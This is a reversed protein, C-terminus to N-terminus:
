ADSVLPQVADEQASILWKTKTKDDENANSKVVQFNIHMPVNPRWGTLYSVLRLSPTQVLEVFLHGEAGPIREDFAVHKVNFHTEPVMARYFLYIGIVRKRSDPRAPVYCLPHLFSADPTFYKHFASVQRDASSAGACLNIALSIEKVPNDM